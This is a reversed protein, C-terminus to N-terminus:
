PERDSDRQGTQGAYVFSARVWEGLVVVEGSPQSGGVPKSDVTESVKM